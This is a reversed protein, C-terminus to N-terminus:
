PYNTYKGMESSTWTKANDMKFKNQYHDANRRDQSNQICLDDDITNRRLELNTKM